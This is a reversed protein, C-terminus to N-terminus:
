SLILSLWFSQKLYVKNLLSLSEDDGIESYDINRIKFERHLAALYAGRAGVWGPNGVEKNFADILEKHTFNGFKKVFEDYHQQITM